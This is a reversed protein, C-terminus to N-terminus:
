PQNLSGWSFMCFSHFLKLSSCFKMEPLSISGGSSLVALALDHMLHFFALLGGQVDATYIRASTPYDEQTREHLTNNRYKKLDM